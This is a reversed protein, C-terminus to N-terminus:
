REVKYKKSLIMSYVLLTRWESMRVVMEADIDRGVLSAFRPVLMELVIPFRRFFDFVSFM